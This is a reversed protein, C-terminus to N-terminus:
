GLLCFRAMGEFSATLQSWQLIAFPFPFPLNCIRQVTDTRACKHAYGGRPLPYDIGWCPSQSSLVCKVTDRDCDVM